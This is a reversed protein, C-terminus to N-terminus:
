YVSDDNQRDILVNLSRPILGAAPLPDDPDLMEERTTAFSTIFPLLASYRGNSFNEMLWLIDHYFLKRQKVDTRYTEIREPVSEGQLQRYHMWPIDVGSNVTLALSGWYRGNVEILYFEGDETMVFEVHVPGTWGLEDIVTEAHETMRPERTGQRVAGIGGSPPYVRDKKHQFTARLEGDEAIGVTCKTGVGDIYEQIIPWQSQLSPNGEIIERYRAALDEHETVYNSGAIRNTNSEGSEDIVTTRRPKIVVAYDRREDIERIEDYSEPTVTEPTPIDVDEMLEFLRGKDNAQLFTEWDETGVRTGTRELETKHESLVTTLLDTVAFVADYDNETLHTHLHEVFAEMDSGVDPHVYSDTTDKSLTGPRYPTNGGATVAIGKKGLTRSLALSNQGQSDLVLAKEATM